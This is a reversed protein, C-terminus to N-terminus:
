SDFELSSCVGLRDLRPPARGRPSNSYPETSRSAKPDIRGPSLGGEQGGALRSCHGLRIKPLM